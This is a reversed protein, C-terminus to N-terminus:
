VPVPEAVISSLDITSVYPIHGFARERDYINKVTGLDDTSWYDLSFTPVSGSTTRAAKLLKLQFEVSDDSRLEYSNAHFDYTTLLSEVLLADIHPLVEPLIQLGRNMMIPVSPFQRRIERIMRISASKMGAFQKPENEELFIASDITDLFVGQFGRRLVYPVLTGVLLGVWDPDRVDVLYSGAWNPNERILMSSGRVSKYEFRSSEIEGVSIYGFLQKGQQRLPRLPLKVGPDLVLLDYPALESQTVETNYCVAWSSVSIPLRLVASNGRVPSLACGLGGLAMSQIIDRRTPMRCIALVILM